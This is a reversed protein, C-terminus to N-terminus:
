DVWPIRLVPKAIECLKTKLFYCDTNVEEIYYTLEVGDVSHGKLALM